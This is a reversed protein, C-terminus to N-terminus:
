ELWKDMRQEQSRGLYFAVSEILKEIEHPKTYLNINDIYGIDYDIGGVMPADDLIVPIIIKKYKEALNIEKRVDRSKNSNKTSAFIFIEARAIAEAIVDKYNLGVYNRRQFAWCRNGEKELNSIIKKNVLEKDKGSYSIFIPAPNDVNSIDINDEHWDFDETDELINEEIEYNHKLEAEKVAFINFVDVFDFETMRDYIDLIYLEIHYPINTRSLHESIADAMDKAMENLDIGAAGTGICPFAISTINLAQMLRFCNDVSHRVIYSGMNLAGNKSLKEKFFDDDRELDTTLCHFIYKQHELKGATSVVVDGLLAPLKKQADQKIFEGGATLISYSVGGGMSINTDDSSVIVEAKSSLIDGIIITVTSNNMQYVKEKKEQQEKIALYHQPHHAMLNRFKNFHMITGYIPIGSLENWNIMQLMMIIRNLENVPSSSLIFKISRFLQTTFPRYHHELSDNINIKNIEKFIDGFFEQQNIIELYNINQFLQSPLLFCGFIQLVDDRYPEADEDDIEAYKFDNPKERQYSHDIYNAIKSSMLAHLVFAPMIPKLSWDIRDFIKMISQELDSNIKNM